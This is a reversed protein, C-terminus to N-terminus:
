DEDKTGIFKYGLGYVTKIFVPGKPDDEIKHRLNKVHADITREYGEFDYGSVINALKQRSMVAGPSEALALLMRFETPTLVVTGSNKRAEHNAADIVLSGKNFSLTKQTKKTRRLHANIRAVLERPSFPKVVYDDAGLGLGQIRDEEASKATLMIVPVDSNERILQCLDEGDMDPLMLDLVVLDFPEKLLKLAKGGTDAHAVRYGDRELYAKVIEAIKAEDEVILISGKEGQAM